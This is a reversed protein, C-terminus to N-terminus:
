EIPFTHMCKAQRFIQQSEEGLMFNLAKPVHGRGGEEDDGDAKRM